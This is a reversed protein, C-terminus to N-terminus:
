TGRRGEAGGSRWVLVQQPRILAAGQRYGTRVTSQVTMHRAVEDTAVFDLAEQWDSNVPGGDDRLEVVGHQELLRATHKQLFEVVREASAREDNGVRDLQDRAQILGDIFGRGQRRLEDRERRAADAEEALRAAQGHAARLEAERTALRDGLETLRRQAETREATLQEVQGHAEIHEATLQEVRKQVDALQGELNPPVAMSAEAPGHGGFTGYINVPITDSPDVVAQSAAIFDAAQELLIVYDWAADFPRGTADSLKRQLVGLAQSLPGFGFALQLSHTTNSAIGGSNM